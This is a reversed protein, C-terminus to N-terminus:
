CRRVRHSDSGRPTRSGGLVGRQTAQDLTEPEVGLSIGTFLDVERSMVASVWTLFRQISYGGSASTLLAAVGVAGLHIVVLAVIAVVAAIPICILLVLRGTIEWNELLALLVGWGAPPEDKPSCTDVIPTTM